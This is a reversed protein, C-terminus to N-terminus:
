WRDKLTGKKVGFKGMAEEDGTNGESVHGNFDAGIVVREGTPISEMVEDLESWYRAKEELECGVKVIKRQSWMSLKYICLAATSLVVVQLGQLHSQVATAATPKASLNGDNFM